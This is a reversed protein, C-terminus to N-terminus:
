DFLAKLQMWDNQIPGHPELKRVAVLPNGAEDFSEVVADFGDRKALWRELVNEDVHGAVAEPAIFISFRVVFARLVCLFLM